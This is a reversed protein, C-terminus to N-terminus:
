FYLLSLLLHLGFLSFRMTFCFRLLFPWCILLLFLLPWRKIIFMSFVRSLLMIFRPCGIPCFSYLLLLLLLLIRVIWKIIYFKFKIIFKWVLFLCLTICIWETKRIRLLILLFFPSFIIWLVPKKICKLLSVTTARCSIMLLFIGRRTPCLPIIILTILLSIVLFICWIFFIIHKM